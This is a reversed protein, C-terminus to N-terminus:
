MEERRTMVVERLFLYSFVDCPLHDLRMDPDPVSHQFDSINRM